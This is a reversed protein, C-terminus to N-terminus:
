DMAARIRLREAESFNPAMEYPVVGFDWFWQTAPNRPLTYYNAQRRSTPAAFLQQHQEHMLLMDDIQIFDTLAPLPKPPPLHPDWTQAGGGDVLIAAYAVVLCLLVQPRKRM